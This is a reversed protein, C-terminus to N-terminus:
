HSRAFNLLGDKQAILNIEAGARHLEERAGDFARRAANDTDPAQLAFMLKGEFGGVDRLLRLKGAWHAGKDYIRTPEADGLFLPKIAAIPKGDRLRVMPLNLHFDDSGVDEPQYAQQLKASRLIGRVAQELLREQYEKGAFGHEVYRAFQEALEAEPDTTLVARPARFRLLSERAETLDAFIAEAVEASAGTVQTRVRMLDDHATRLARVYIGKDLSEFFNGVRARRHALRFGFFGTKPCCLVVGINVFEETEVFPLFRLISYYALTKM